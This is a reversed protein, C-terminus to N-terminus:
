KNEMSKIVNEAYRLQQGVYPDGLSGGSTLWDTLRKEIDEKVNLPLKPFVKQLKDFDNM